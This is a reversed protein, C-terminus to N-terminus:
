HITFLDDQTPQHCCKVETQKAGHLTETSGQIRALSIKHACATYYGKGEM